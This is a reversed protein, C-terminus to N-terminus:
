RAYGLARLREDLEPDPVVTGGPRGLGSPASREFAEMVALLREAVASESAALNEREAPDRALNYLEVRERDGRVILKWDGERIARYPVDHDGWVAEAMAHTRPYARDMGRLLPVLSLADSPPPALGGLELLTPFLDLTSVVREVVRASLRPGAVILPVHVQEQHLSEGHAWEGHELFAEGHDATVVVFTNRLLGRAELGGLLEGVRADLYRIEGDYQAIYHELDESEPLRHVVPMRELERPKLPRRRAPAFARHYPPPPLYPGHADWYHLWALFPRVPDRQEDLWRLFARQLRSASEHTRWDVAEPRVTTEVESYVEWGQDLGFLPKLIPNSYHAVTQYGADRFREAATTFRASLFHDRVFVGHRSPSLGTWLSPM